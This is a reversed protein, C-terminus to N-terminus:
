NNREVVPRRQDSQCWACPEACGPARAQEQDRIKKPLRRLASITPIVNSQRTRRWSRAPSEPRFHWGAKPASKPMMTSEATIRTSFMKPIELAIVFFTLLRSIAQQPAQGLAFRSNRLALAHSSAGGASLASWTSLATKIGREDRDGTETGRNVM